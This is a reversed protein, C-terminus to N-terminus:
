VGGGVGVTGGGGDGCTRSSGRSTTMAETKPIASTAASVKMVRSIRADYAKLGVFQNRPTGTQGRACRADPHAWASLAVFNQAVGHFAYKISPQIPGQTQASPM